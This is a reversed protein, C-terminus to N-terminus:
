PTELRNGPMRLFDDPPLDPVDDFVGPTEDMAPAPFGSSPIVVPSPLGTPSEAEVPRTQSVDDEDVEFRPDAGGRDLMPNVHLALEDQVWRIWSPRYEIMALRMLQQRVHEDEDGLRIKTRVLNGLYKPNEPDMLSAQRYLDIAEVARGGAELTMGLNNLPMADDPLLEVASDFHTAALSLRHQDFYILGLNNHARGNTPDLDIAKRFSKEALEFRQKHYHKLGAHFAVDSSASVGSQPVTTEVVDSGGTSHFVLCGALWPFLTFSVLLRCLAVRHRRLPEKHKSFKM